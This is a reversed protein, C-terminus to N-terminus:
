KFLSNQMDLVQRNMDDNNKYFNVDPNLKNKQVKQPKGEFSGANINDKLNYQTNFVNNETRNIISNNTKVSITSRNKIKTQDQQNINNSSHLQHKKNTIKPAQINEKLRIDNIYNEKNFDNKFINKQSAYSTYNCDKTYNNTDIVKNIPTFYSNQSIGSQLSIELSDETYNSTDFKNNYSINTSKINSSTSTYIKDQIHKNTDTEFKNNNHFRISKNTINNAKIPNTIILDSSVTSDKKTFDNFKYRSSVSTTVPNKIVYKVEFKKEIPKNIYFKETPRVSTKLVNEKIQKYKKKSYLIKNSYDKVTPKTVVSTYKRPQRSWPLSKYPDEIKPRFVGDKMISGPTYGSTGDRNSYSINTFQNVGKQYPLITESIINKYLLPDKLHETSVKEIPRAIIYKPPDKQINMSGFAGEISPTIMNKSSKLLQSIM